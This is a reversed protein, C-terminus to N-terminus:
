RSPSSAHVALTEHAWSALDEWQELSLRHPTECGKRIDPLIGECLYKM